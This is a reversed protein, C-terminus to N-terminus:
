FHRRDCVFPAAEYIELALSFGRPILPIRWSTSRSSRSRPGCWCGAKCWARPAERATTSIREPRLRPGCRLSREAANTQTQASQLRKGRGADAWGYWADPNITVILIGGPKKCCPFVCCGVALPAYRGKIGRVCRLFSFFSGHRPCDQYAATRRIAELNHAQEGIATIGFGIGFVM